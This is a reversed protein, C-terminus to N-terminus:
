GFRVNKLVDVLAERLEENEGAFLVGTFGYAVSGYITVFQYYRMTEADEGPTADFIHLLTEEGNITTPETSVPSYNPASARSIEVAQRAFAMKDRVPQQLPDKKIHMQMVVGLVGDDQINVVFNGQEGFQQTSAVWGDPLCLSFREVETREVACNRALDDDPEGGCATLTLLGAAIMIPILLKQM